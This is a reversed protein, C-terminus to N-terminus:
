RQGCRAAIEPIGLLGADPECCLVVATLPDNESAAICAWLPALPDLEIPEPASECGMPPELQIVRQTAAEPRFRSYIDIPPVEPDAFSVRVRLDYDQCTLLDLNFARTFTDPAAQAFAGGAEAIWLEPLIPKDPDPACAWGFQLSVAKPEGASVACTTPDAPDASSDCALASFIVMACAVAFALALARIDAKQQTM